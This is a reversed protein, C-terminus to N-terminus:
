RDRPIVHEEVIRVPVIAGTRLLAAGADYEENMM